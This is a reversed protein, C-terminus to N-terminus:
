YIERGKGTGKTVYAEQFLVCSRAAPAAAAGDGDDAAPMHFAACFELLPIFMCCPPAGGAPRKLATSLQLMMYLTCYICIEECMVM